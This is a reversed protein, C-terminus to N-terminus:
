EIDGTGTLYGAEFALRIHTMFLATIQQISLKITGTKDPKDGLVGSQITDLVDKVLWEDFASEAVGAKRLAPRDDEHEAFRHNWRAADEWLNAVDEVTRKV